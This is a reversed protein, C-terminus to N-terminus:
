SSSTQGESWVPILVEVVEPAEEVELVEVLVEM